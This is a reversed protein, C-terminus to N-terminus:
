YDSISLQNLIKIPPGKIEKGAESLGVGPVIVMNNSPQAYRAEIVQEIHMM